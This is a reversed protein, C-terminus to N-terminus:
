AGSEELIESTLISTESLFAVGLIVIGTSDSLIDPFYIESSTPPLMILYISLFTSGMSDACSDANSDCEARDESDMSAPCSNSESSGLGFFSLGSLLMVKFSRSIYFYADTTPNIPLSVERTFLTFVAWWNETLWASSFLFTMFCIISTSRRKAFM